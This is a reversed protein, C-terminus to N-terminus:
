IHIVGKHLGAVFKGLFSLAKLSKYRVVKAM